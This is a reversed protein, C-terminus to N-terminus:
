KEKKYKIRDVISIDRSGLNFGILALIPTLLFLFPIIYRWGASEELVYYIGFFNYRSILFLMLAAGQQFVTFLLYLIISPLEFLVAGLVADLRVKGLTIKGNGSGTAGLTKFGFKWAELYAMSYIVISPVGSVFLLQWWGKGFFAIVGLCMFLTMLSSIAQYLFLKGMYSFIGKTGM